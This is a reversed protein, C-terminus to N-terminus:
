GRHESSPCDKVQSRAETKGGWGTFLDPFFISEGQFCLVLYEIQSLMLTCRDVEAVVYQPLSRKQKILSLAFTEIIETFKHTLAIHLADFRVMPFEISFSVKELTSWKYRNGKFEGSMFALAVYRKEALIKAWIRRQFRPRNQRTSIIMPTRTLAFSRIPTMTHLTVREAISEKIEDYYKQLETTWLTEDLQARALHM